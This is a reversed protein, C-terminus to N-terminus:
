LQTMPTALIAVAGSALWLAGRPARYIDQKGFCIPGVIVMCLGEFCVPLRLRVKGSNAASPGAFHRTLCQQGRQGCTTSPPAKIACSPFRYSDPLAPGSLWPVSTAKCAAHSRPRATLPAASRCAQGNVSRRRALHPVAPYAQWVPLDCDWCLGYPGM